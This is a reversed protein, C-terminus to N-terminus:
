QPIPQNSRSHRVSNGVLSIINIGVGLPIVIKPNQYLLSFGCYLGAYKVPNFYHSFHGQNFFESTITKYGLRSIKCGVGLILGFPDVGGLAGRFFDVVTYEGITDSIKDFRSREELQNAM